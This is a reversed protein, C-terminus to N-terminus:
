APSGWSPGLDQAMPITQPETPAGEEREGPL